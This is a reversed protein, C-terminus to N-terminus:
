RITIHDVGVMTGKMTIIAEMEGTDEITGIMTTTIAIIIDEEVGSAINLSTILGSATTSELGLGFLQDKMTMFNMM